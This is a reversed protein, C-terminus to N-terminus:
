GEYVEFGMGLFVDEIERKVQTLPHLRGRPFSAGPLTVDVDSQAYLRELEDSEIASRREEVADELRQRVANLVSGTERDRVNRLAQKLESKRGLYRVRAADLEELTAARSIAALGDNELAQADM